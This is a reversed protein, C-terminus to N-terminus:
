SSILNILVDSVPHYRGDSARTILGDRILRNLCGAVQEKTLIQLGCILSEMTCGTRSITIALLVILRQRRERDELRM